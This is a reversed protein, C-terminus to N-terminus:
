HGEMRKTLPWCYVGSACLPENEVVLDVVDPIAMRSHPHAMRGLRSPLPDAAIKLRDISGM